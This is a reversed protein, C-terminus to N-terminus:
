RMIQDIENSTADALGKALKKPDLEVAIAVADPAHTPLPATVPADLGLLHGFSGQALDKWSAALEESAAEGTRSFDGAVAISLLIGERASPRAAAGIATAAALLGRAGRALEGEFPGLAFARAPAPGLREALARLSPDAFARTARSLAGRAFLAAIRCPGRPISGAQQFCVVDSGIAAFAHAGRGIKGSVRVLDHRDVARTTDTSLRDRFAREVARPDSTHRLLEVTADGENTTYSAVVAEPTRRLDVATGKAFRDFRAESIVAGVFPVLWPISTIEHPHVLVVWRLGALPLLGDLSPVALPPEPTAPKTVPAPAGCGAAASALAALTAALFARRGPDTADASSSTRSSATRRDSASM